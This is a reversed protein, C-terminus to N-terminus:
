QPEIRTAQGSSKDEQSALFRQLAALRHDWRAEISAIWAAAEALPEPTLSLMRERGRRESAILGADELVEVHKTIAQRSIPFDDALRSITMPEAAEASLREIMRRRTPDALALFVEPAADLLPSTEM